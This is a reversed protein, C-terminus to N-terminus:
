KVDVFHIREFIRGIFDNIVDENFCREMVAKTSEQVTDVVECMANELRTSPKYDVSRYHKVDCDPFLSALTSIIISGNPEIRHDVDVATIDIHHPQSAHKNNLVIFGNRNRPVVTIPSSCARDLICTSALILQDFDNFFMIRITFKPDCKNINVHILDSRVNEDTPMYVFYCAVLRDMDHIMVHYTKSIRRILVKTTNLPKKYFGVQHM